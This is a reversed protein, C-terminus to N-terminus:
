LSPSREAVVGGILMVVVMVLLWLPFISHDFSVMGGLCAAVIIATIGQHGRLVKATAVTVFLLLAVGMWRWVQIEALTTNDSVMTIFPRLPNTLTAGSVTGDGFWDSTEVLPLVDSPPEGAIDGGISPQGSSVMSSLTATVGDPNVGWTIIGDQAVGERDLLTGFDVTYTDGAELAATLAAFHLTDDAATFSTIVATEGKPALDDTTDTIILRALNWYDNAQTLVADVLTTTTGSDVTGAEGTNAVITIPQYHAILTVGVTHKYYEMYPIVNNHAITWDNANDPVSAGGLAVSQPSDGQHTGTYNTVSLTLDTGDASTKVIQEGSSLGTVTVELLPYADFDFEYLRAPRPYDESDHYFRVRAKEVKETSGISKEVWTHNTYAGQYLDNWASNYYLDIDIQNVTSKTYYADFRVGDCYIAEDFLLELYVGWTNIGSPTEQAFTATDDDYANTENDWDSSPDSHSDPTVWANNTTQFAASTINGEGNVYTRFASEKYVLNKSSGASTDVWGKQEIEFTDGLELAADDAVTIYGNHGTIIDLSALDTNGTSFYLNTQSDAPVPIATLTRDTAVMHPKQLGSLTEVRTDLADAQMFGNAAMWDNNATVMVPLMDYANSSSEAITLPARYLYALVPSALLMAAVLSLLIVRGTRHM